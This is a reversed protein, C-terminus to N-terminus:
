LSLLIENHITLVSQKDMWGEIFVSLTLKMNLTRVVIFVLVVHDRFAESLERM